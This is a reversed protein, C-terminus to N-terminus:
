RQLTSVSRMPVQVKHQAVTTALSSWTASTSPCRRVKRQRTQEARKGERCAAIMAKSALAWTM